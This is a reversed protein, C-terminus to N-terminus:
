DRDDEEDDMFDLEDDGGSEVIDDVNAELYHVLIGLVGVLEHDGAELSEKITAIGDKVQKRNPNM